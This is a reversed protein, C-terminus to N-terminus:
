VSQQDLNLLGDSLATKVLQGAAPRQTLTVGLVILITYKLWDSLTRTFILIPLSSKTITGQGQQNTHKDKIRGTYFQIIHFIDIFLFSWVNM